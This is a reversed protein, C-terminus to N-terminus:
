RCGITSRTTGASLSASGDPSVYEIPPLPKPNKVAARGRDKLYGAQVLEARLEALEQWSNARALADARIGSVSTGAGLGCDTNKLM